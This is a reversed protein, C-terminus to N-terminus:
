LVLHYRCASCPKNSIGSPLAARFRLVFIGFPAVSCPPTPQREHTLQNQPYQFVSSGRPTWGITPINIYGLGQLSYFIVSINMFGFSLKPLIFGSFCILSPIQSYKFLVYVTSCQDWLTISIFLMVCWNPPLIYPKNCFFLFFFGLCFKSAWGQRQKESCTLWIALPFTCSRFDNCVMSSGSSAPSGSIASNRCSSPPMRLLSGTKM